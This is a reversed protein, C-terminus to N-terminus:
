RRAPLVRRGAYGAERLVSGEYAVVGDGAAVADRRDPGALLAAATRPVAADRQADAAGAAAPADSLPEDCAPDGGQTM